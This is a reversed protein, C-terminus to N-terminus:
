HGSSGMSANGAHGATWNEVIYEVFSLLM